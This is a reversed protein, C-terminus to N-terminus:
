LTSKCLATCQLTIVIRIQLSATCQLTIVIHIQVSRKLSKTFSRSVFLGAGTGKLFPAANGCRGECEANAPCLVPLIM